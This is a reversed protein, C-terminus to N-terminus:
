LFLDAFRSAQRDAGSTHDVPAAEEIEHILKAGSHRLVNTLRLFGDLLAVFDQSSSVFLGRQAKSAGLFFYPTPYAVRFNNSGGLHAGLLDDGFGPAFTLADDLAGSM